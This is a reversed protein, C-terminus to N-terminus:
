NYNNRNQDQQSFFRDLIESRQEASLQPSLPTTVPDDLDLDLQDRFFLSTEKQEDTQPIGVVPLLSESTVLNSSPAVTDIQSLVEQPIVQSQLTEEECLFFSFALSGLRIRDGDKLLIQEQVREKNVFSGNTSKLDSLYFGQNRVYEIAAHRRSIRSDSIALTSHRDRGITWVKQPQILKKTRGAVLNTVLYAQNSEVIGIVYQPHSGFSANNGTNELKLIDDLLDQHHEYLKLFVQYLGIRHEIEM